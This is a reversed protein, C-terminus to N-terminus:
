EESVELGDGIIKIISSPHKETVREKCIDAHTPLLECGIVNRELNHAAVATTGSGMFPDLVIGDSPCFLKIFFEPLWVPYAASHGTNHTVPSGHLVNGPYVTDKGVWNDVKRGSGSGTGSKHRAKDNESLSKLRTKSWDGVPVKVADQDMFFGKNKTFHFCHEWLDRFRGNWKGPMGTTKHWIYDDVYRWGQKRM